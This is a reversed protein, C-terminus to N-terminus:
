DMLTATDIIAEAIDALRRNRDMALKRLAQYAEDESCQHQKIVLGKAREILKRERLSTRTKHLEQQLQNRLAFRALAAAIIPGIRQQQLGDVIFACVGAQTAAVAHDSTGSIVFMVVPLPHEISLKQLKALIADDPSHIDFIVLDITRHSALAFVDCNSGVITDVPYSEQALATEFLSIHEQYDSILLARQPM